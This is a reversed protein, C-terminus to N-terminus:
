LNAKIFNQVYESKCFPVPNKKDFLIKEIKKSLGDYHYFEFDSKKDLVIKVFGYNRTSITKIKGDNLLNITSYHPHNFKNIGTSILAYDPKIRNLMKKSIVDKAGHHGVKLIDTKEPLYKEISNFGLVGVDGMFLFNKNKYTILTVISTENDFKDSDSKTKLKPTFTKVVLDPESYIIENNKAVKYNFNNSKIYDLIEKSLESKAKDKQIIVEETKVSKLVDIAGGCHDMDFHTIILAKLKNIRENKFYRNLIIEGSSLGKYPKRGTDILIYRKKPTKILFSDANEVDFMVIEFDNKFSDTKVFSLVFIFILCIMSILSKKNKFSFKLNLLFLLILVWVGFMQFINLGYVNLMSYKFSAFFESIKVLLTLMPKAIIDFLHVVPENLYPVLAIISSIFGIFSLIGIFPIVAINAIVSFLAFNNFYHMQLPIVWLQAFFPVALASVINVPSFAYVFYKVFSSSNKFKEKFKKDKDTIKSVVVPCSVILGITVVFSLQFGVDFLMKPNFFLILFGVFFVLAVSNVNRDILKGFLVFLLMCSARLISPPFGTMFTYLIVFIAGLLISFNYPIRLLMAIWWWIGFILAVNLGSAALLHLLGSNKFDEKIKEDPNITENGFVIGGLIELEPSKIYKSHRLIVDQRISEFKKLIYYWSDNCNHIDFVPEKIIHITDPKAYLVNTCDNNLLYRRYNFQYPNKAEKAPSLRGQVEIFDGISIKNENKDDKIYSVLIKSNLNKFKKGSIRVSDAKLYFRVRKYRNSIDKSTVIRGSLVVNDAKVNQLSKDINESSNARIIGVFFMLYLIITRKFGLNLFITVLILIILAFISCILTCNYFCSALGSVYFISFLITFLKTQSFKEEM